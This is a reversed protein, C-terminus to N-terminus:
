LDFSLLYFARSFNCFRRKHQTEKCINQIWMWQYWHLGKKDGRVGISEIQWYQVVRM